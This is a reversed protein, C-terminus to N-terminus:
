TAARGTGGETTMEETQVLLHQFQVMAEREREGLRFNFGELYERTEAGSLGLTAGHMLGVAGLNADAHDLSERISARLAQQETEPLDRRSAWVAFVFPLKQWNYWEGALDFVLEFGPLGSKNRRLAEDGILLVADYEDLDNVGAHMRKFRARVGYKRDLIVNLLRVSTATDDTIGITKGQLGAWGEKSFLMVSKVQDRTAICWGLLELAEQQALYDMLSFLGADIEGRASLVGM